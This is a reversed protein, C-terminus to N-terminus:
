CALNATNRAEILELQKRVKTVNINPFLEPMCEIFGQVVKPDFQKGSNEIIEEVATEISRASRYARNSTMADFCDAVSIIRAMLPIDEGKTGNPYGLGDWREHHNLVVKQDDKLLKIDKIIDAGIQPHQKVVDFEGNTLEGAKNLVTDSVAVKGIDHLLALYNLQELDLDNLGLKRGIAVSYQAVRESHGKTYMDKAEISKILTEITNLYNERMEMYLKFSYRALLLPLFFLIVGMTGMSYYIAAVGFGLPALTLYHPTLLKFNTLWVGWPNLGNHLSIVFTVLITNMIFYTFSIIFANVIFFFSIPSIVVEWSGAVLSTIYVCIIIQCVNFVEKIILSERKSRILAAIIEAVISVIPGFILISALHLAFTISVSGVKPLKVPTLDSVVILLCFLLYGSLTEVKWNATFITDVTFVAALLVVIGIYIKLMWTSRQNRM